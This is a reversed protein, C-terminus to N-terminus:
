SNIFSVHGTKLKSSKQQLFLDLHAYSEHSQDGIVFSRVEKEIEIWSQGSGATARQRLADVEKACDLLGANSYINSMLVYPAAHNPQIQIVNHFYEKGLEVNGHKLCATLLSLWTILDPEVLMMSLMDNIRTFDGARGLLDIMCNYHEIQPCIGYARMSEFYNIGVEVLNVRSCAWLVSLFTVGNPETNGLQM